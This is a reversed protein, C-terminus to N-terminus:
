FVMGAGIALRREQRRGSQGGLYSEHAFGEVQAYFRLPTEPPELALGLRNEDLVETGAPDRTIKEQFRDM